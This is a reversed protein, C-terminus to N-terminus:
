REIVRVGQSEFSWTYVAEERETQLVCIEELQKGTRTQSMAYMQNDFVRSCTISLRRLAGMNNKMIETLRTVGPVKLTLEELEPLAGQEFLRGLELVDHHTPAALELSKLKPTHHLLGLSTCDEIGDNIIVLHRLNPFWQAAGKAYSNWFSYRLELREVQRLMSASGLCQLLPAPPTEGALALERVNRMGPFTPLEVVLRVLDLDNIRSTHLALKELAPLPQM